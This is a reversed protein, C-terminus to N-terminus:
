PECRYPQARSADRCLGDAQREGAGDADADGKAIARAENAHLRACLPLDAAARYHMYWFRRSLGQLLKM